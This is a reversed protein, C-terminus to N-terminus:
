FFSIPVVGLEKEINAVISVYDPTGPPRGAASATITAAQAAKYLAPELVLDKLGDWVPGKRKWNIPKGNVMIGTEGHTPDLIWGKGRSSFCIRDAPLSSTAPTTVLISSVSFDVNTGSNLSVHYGDADIKMTPTERKSPGQVTSLPYPPETTARSLFSVGVGRARKLREFSARLEDEAVGSVIPFVDPKSDEALTGIGVPEQGAFIYFADGRRSLKATYQEWQFDYKGLSAHSAPVSAPSQAHGSKQAFGTNTLAAILTATLAIPPLLLRNAVCAESLTAKVIL